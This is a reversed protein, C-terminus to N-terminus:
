ADNAGKRKIFKLHSQPQNDPKDDFPKIFIEYDSFKQFCRKSNREHTQTFLDIGFKGYHTPNAKATEIFGVLPAQYLVSHCHPCCPLGHGGPNPRMRQTKFDYTIPPLRGLDEPFSTWWACHVSYFALKEGFGEVIPSQDLIEELNM